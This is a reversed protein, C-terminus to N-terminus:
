KTKCLPQLSLLDVLDVDVNFELSLRQQLEWRAVPSIKSPLLVALDIDSDTNAQNSAHSGFLYLLKIDPIFQKCVNIIHSQFGIAM